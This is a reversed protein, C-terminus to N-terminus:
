CLPTPWCPSLSVRAYSRPSRRLRCQRASSTLSPPCARPRPEQAAGPAAWLDKKLGARRASKRPSTDAAVTCAVACCIAGFDPLANVDAPGPARPSRALVAFASSSSSFSSRQRGRSGTHLEVELGAHQSWGADGLAHRAQLLLADLGIVAEANTGPRTAAPAPASRRPSAPIRRPAPRTPAPRVGPLGDLLARARRRRGSRAGPDPAAGPREVLAQGIAFAPM